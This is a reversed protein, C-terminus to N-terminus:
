IQSKPGTALHRLFRWLSWRRGYGSWDPWGMSLLHAVFAHIERPTTGAYSLMYRLDRDGGRTRRCGRLKLLHNLCQRVEAERLEPLEIVGIRERFLVLGNGELLQWFGPLGVFITQLRSYPLPGRGHSILWLYKLANPSLAHADDISLVIRSGNGALHWLDDVGIPPIDPALANVITEHLKTPRIPATAPELVRLNERAVIERAAKLLATKGVGSAGTLAIFPTGYLVKQVLLHLANRHTAGLFLEPTSSLASFCSSPVFVM